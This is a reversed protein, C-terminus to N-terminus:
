LFLAVGVLGALFHLTVAVRGSAASIFEPATSNGSGPAGIRTMAFGTPQPAGAIPCEPRSGPPCDIPSASGSSGSQSPTGATSPEVSSESSSPSGYEPTSGRTGAEPASAPSGPASAPSGAEPASAPSGSEPAYAPSGPEPASAPSVSGPASALSGSEPASAPSGSEPASAPSGAEPASAPSGAEPASAPSGYEPANSPTGSSPSAGSVPGASPGSSEDEFAAVPSASEPASETSGYEPASDTSSGPASDPSDSGPASGRSGAEPSSAPEQSGTESSSGPQPSSISEETQGHKEGVVSGSEIGKKGGKRCKKKPKGSVDGGTETVTTEQVEEVHSVRKLSIITVKRVKSVPVPLPAEGQPAKHVTCSDTCVGSCRQVLSGKEKALEQPAPKTEVVVKNVVRILVQSTGSTCLVVFNGSAADSSAAADAGSDSESGSEASAEASADSSVSNAGESGSSAGASASASASASVDVSSGYFYQDQYRTVVRGQDAPACPEFYMDPQTVSSTIDQVLRVSVSSALSRHEAPISAQVIVFLGFRIEVECKPAAPSPTESDDKSTTKSAEEDAASTTQPAKDETSSTTEPSKDDASSTSKPAGPADTSSTTCPPEEEEEEQEEDATDKPAEDEAETDKPAEDKAETDKPAEDKAETDKHDEEESPTYSGEVGYDNAAETEERKWQVHRCAKIMEDFNGCSAKLANPKGYTIKGLDVARDKIVTQCFAEVNGQGVHSSIAVLCEKKFEPNADQGSEQRRITAAESLAALGLVLSGKM